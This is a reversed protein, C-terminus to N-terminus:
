PKGARARIGSAARTLGRLRGLARRTEKSSIPLDGYTALEYDAALLAMPLRPLGLGAVRKSHRRPTEAPERALDGRRGLQDLLAVYAEAASRPRHPLEVHPRNLPLHVGLRIRPLHVERHREEQARQVHPSSPIGAALRHLRFAAFALGSVLAIALIPGASRPLAPMDLSPAPIVPLSVRPILGEVTSWAESVPGGMPAAIAGAAGALPGSVANLADRATTGTLLAAALSGAAATVAVSTAVLPWARGGSTPSGLLGLERLRAHAIALLGAAVCVAAGVLAPAASLGLQGGHLLWPAALIPFAAVLAASSADVEDAPDEHAAGRLVAAGLLWGAPHVALAASPSVPFGSGSVGAAWGLAGAALAAPFLWLGRRASHPRLRSWATGLMAAAVFEVLSLPAAASARGGALALYAVGVLSGELLGGLVFPALNVRWSWRM